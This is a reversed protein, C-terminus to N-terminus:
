MKIILNEVKQKLRMLNMQLTYHFIKLLRFYKTEQQKTIIEDIIEARNNFENQLDKRIDSLYTYVGHRM